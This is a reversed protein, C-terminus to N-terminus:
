AAAPASAWSSPAVLWEEASELGVAETGIRPPEHEDHAACLLIM